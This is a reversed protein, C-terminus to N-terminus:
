DYNPQITQEGCGILTVEEVINMLPEFSRFIDMDFVTAKFDTANRGCM